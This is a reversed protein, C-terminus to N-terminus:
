SREGSKGCLSPFCASKVALFERLLPVCKSCCVHQSLPSFRRPLAWLLMSTWASHFCTPPLNKFAVCCGWWYIEDGRKRNSKPQRTNSCGPVPCGGLIKVEFSCFCFILQDPAGNQLSVKSNRLNWFSCLSGFIAATTSHGSWPWKPTHAREV